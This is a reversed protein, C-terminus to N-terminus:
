ANSVMAPFIIGRGQHVNIVCEASGRFLGPGFTQDNYCLLMGVLNVPKDWLNYKYSFEQQPVYQQVVYEQWHQEIQEKWFAPTCEDKVYIGIGRGGSNPKILWNKKSTIIAERKEATNLVYAPVLFLSLFDYEEETLYNLMIERNYLVALIRKDHVLILTRVDNFYNGHSIIHQLVDPSFKKLEGRDMELIFQSVPKGHLLVEGNSLQLEQPAASQSMLSKKAFEGLLYFVETGKESDHVLVLPEAQNFRQYFVDIFSTQYPVPQLDPVNFVSTHLCIQNLYYSLMWGNIPYRAGIECIKSQGEVSQLFDPRYLGLEYPRGDALRLINEFEQDLAYIERIREDKFYSNVVNLLAKNLTRCLQEMQKLDAAKIAVPAQSFSDRGNCPLEGLYEQLSEHLLRRGEVSEELDFLEGIM